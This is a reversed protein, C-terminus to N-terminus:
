RRRWFQALLSVRVLLVGVLLTLVTVVFEASGRPVRLLLLLSAAVLFLGARFFLKPEAM